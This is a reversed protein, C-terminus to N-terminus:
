GENKGGGPSETAAEAGTKCYRDIEAPHRIVEYHLFEGFHHRVRKYFKLQAENLTGRATKGEILLTHGHRFAVRDPFGAMQQRTSKDQSTVVVFWGATRLRRTTEAM